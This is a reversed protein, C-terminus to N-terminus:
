RPREVADAAFRARVRGPGAPGMSRMGCFGDRGSGCEPDFRSRNLGTLEAGRLQVLCEGAAVHDAQHALDAGGAVHDARHALDAGGSVVVRHLRAELEEL